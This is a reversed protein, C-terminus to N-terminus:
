RSKWRNTWSGDPIANPPKLGSNFGVTNGNDEASETNDNDAYQVEKSIPEEIVEKLSTL